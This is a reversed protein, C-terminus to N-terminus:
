RILLTAQELGVPLVPAAGVSQGMQELVLQNDEADFQHAV